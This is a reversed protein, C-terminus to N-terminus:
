ENNRKDLYGQLILQAAIKDIVTKRKKRSVSAAILVRESEVTSLREDWLEVPLNTSQKLKDAFRICEEAKKGISGNMNIPIGVVIEQVNFEKIILNIREFVKKLGVVEIVELGQAITASEDSLAVGIRKTGIDLGLIRM